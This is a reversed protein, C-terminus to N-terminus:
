RQTRRMHFPTSQVVGLIIGSGLRFENGGTQRLIERVAPADYYELRRGLAYTMM